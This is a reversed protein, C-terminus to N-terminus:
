LGFMQTIRFNEALNKLALWVDVWWVASMVETLIEGNGIKSVGSISM